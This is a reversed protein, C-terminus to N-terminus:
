CAKRGAVLTHVGHALPQRSHSARPVRWIPRAVSASCERVPASAIGAVFLMLAWNLASGRAFTLLELHTM